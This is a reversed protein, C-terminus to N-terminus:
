TLCYVGYIILGWLPISILLGLVVGKIAISENM